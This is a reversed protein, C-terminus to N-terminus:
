SSPMELGQERLRFTQDLLRFALTREFKRHWNRGPFKAWRSLGNEYIKIASFVAHADQMYMGNYLRVNGKPGILTLESTDVTFEGTMWAQMTNRATNASMMDAAVRWPGLDEAALADFDGPKFDSISRGLQEQAEQYNSIDFETGSTLHLKRAEVLNKVGQYMVGGNNGRKEWNNSTLGNSGTVIPAYSTRGRGVPDVHNIPDGECYAYANRGGVGFPSLADPSAFRMLRTDYLRHGNGLLYCGPEWDRLYGAYGLLATHDGPSEFGYPGYVHGFHGSGRASFTISGDSRTGTLLGDGQGVQALAGGAGRVIRRGAGVEGVVVPRDEMYFFYKM